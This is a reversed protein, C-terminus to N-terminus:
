EYKQNLFGKIIYKMASFNKNLLSLFLYGGTWVFVYYMYFIPQYYVKVYKKAFIRFNRIMYFVYTNSMYRISTSVKHYIYTKPTFLVKLGKQKAKLCFDTEEFYLFYEEPLYGIKKFVDRKIIMACGTIFDCEFNNKNYYSNYNMKKNKMLTLGTFKNVFGGAFYIKNKDPYYRIMPGLIDPNDKYLQDLIVNFFSEDSIITDPNLLFVYEYNSELVKKIALNNGGAFGLNINSKILNIDSSIEKELKFLDEKKSNNDVVFIDFLRKNFKGLSSLCEIVDISSNYNVIIIAFKKM